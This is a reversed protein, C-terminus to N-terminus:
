KKTSSKGKTTMTPPDYPSVLADPGVTRELAALFVPSWKIRYEKHKMELVCCGIDIALVASRDELIYKGIERVSDKLIAETTHRDVGAMVGIENVSIQTPVTEHYHVDHTTLVNKVKYKATFDDQLILQPKYFMRTTNDFYAIKQVKISVHFFDPFVCSKKTVLLQGTHDGM